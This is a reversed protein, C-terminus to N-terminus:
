ALWREVEELKVELQMEIYVDPRQLTRDSAFHAGTDDDRGNHGEESWICYRHENSPDNMSRVNSALLPLFRFASSFPSSARPSSVHQKYILSPNATSFYLQSFGRASPLAHM